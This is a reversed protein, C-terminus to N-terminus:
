WWVSQVRYYSGHPPRSVAVTRPRTTAVVSHNSRPDLWWSPAWGLPAVEVAPPTADDRLFRTHTEIVRHATKIRWAFDFYVPEVVTTPFYFDITHHDGRALLVLPATPLDSNVFMAGARPTYSVSVTANTLDFSWPLTDAVNTVTVRVHLLTTTHGDVPTLEVTGFSAIEAFGRPEEAPLALVTSRSSAAVLAVLSALGGTAVFLRSVRMVM